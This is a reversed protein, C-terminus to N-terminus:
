TERPISEFASHPIGCSFTCTNGTRLRLTYVNEQEQQKILAGFTYTLGIVCHYFCARITSCHITM